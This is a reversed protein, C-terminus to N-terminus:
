CLAENTKYSPHLCTFDSSHRVQVPAIESTQSSSLAWHSDGHQAVNSPGPALPSLCPTSLVTLATSSSFVVPPAATSACRCHPVTPTFYVDCSSDDDSVSIQNIQGRLGRLPKLKFVRLM